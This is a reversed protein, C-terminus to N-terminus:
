SPDPLPWVTGAARHLCAPALHRSVRIPRRGWPLRLLLVVISASLRHTPAPPVTESAARSRLPSQGALARCTGTVAGASLARSRPPVHESRPGPPDEREADRVSPARTPALHLQGAATVACPGATRRSAHRGHTQAGRTGSPRMREISFGQGGQLSCSPTSMEPRQLMYVKSPNFGAETCRLEREPWSGGQPVCQSCREQDSAWTRISTVPSVEFYLHRFCFPSPPPLSRARPSAAKVHPRLRWPAPDPVCPLVDCM